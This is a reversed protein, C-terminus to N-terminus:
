RLLRAGVDFPRRLVADVTQLEARVLRLDHLRQEVRRFGVSESGGRVQLLTADRMHVRDVRRAETEARPRVEVAVELRQQLVVRDLGPRHVHVGVVLLPAESLDRTEPVLNVLRSAGLPLRVQFLVLLETSDKVWGQRDVRGAAM